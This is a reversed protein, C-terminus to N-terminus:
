PQARRAAAAGPGARHPRRHRGRGGQREASIAIDRYSENTSIVHDATRHTRRELARLGRYPCRRATRSVRSTCSPACTM